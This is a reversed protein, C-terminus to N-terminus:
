LNVVNSRRFSIVDSEICTADEEKTIQNEEKNGQTKPCAGNSSRIKAEMVGIITLTIGVGVVITICARTQEKEKAERWIRYIWLIM